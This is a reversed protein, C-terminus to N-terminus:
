GEADHGHVLPALARRWAVYGAGLLHLADNSFGPSIAGDAGAFAPTLDLFRLGREDALRALAANLTHVRGAFPAARPLVSQVVVETTPSGATLRDLIAAYNAVIRAHPVGTGLDNTGVLLFVKAPSGASVQEVRELVTATTDGGIGRNRVPVGPFMEAWQAAATLSDGLFVVDGPEVPFADFFSRRRERNPAVYLREGVRPPASRWAWVALAVARANGILSLGLLLAVIRNWNM